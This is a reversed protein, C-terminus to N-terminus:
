VVQVPFRLKVVTGGAPPCDVAITGGHADILRKATSLGLGTGRAKTTFFPTFLKERVDAPIGPGDDAIAVECGGSGQAVSIRVTGRGQMAHASNLILNQLVIKLMEADGPIPAAGGAIEVRFDKLASDRQLLDAVMDLLSVLDVPAMRPQPPRAFLLMDKMLANLADLRAIIERIVAADKGDSPLRTGIVQIAGRIGTLPNKVEHAVVAAMEGLKELATQERLRAEMRVRGSLDHVIGTFKREGEISMEGVSLHIPFTTGDKRLGTVERGIGIIRQEGTQLYRALYDDHEDRYPSPMLMAVNRGLVEAELYGFLREAAANYAEVRGRADIVIIGDVASEVIARWRAESTRLALEVRKRSTIDRAIASAGVVRGSADHIPSVTLSVDLREGAKTVRVTEYHGLREGERVGDLISQFETMHSPPILTAISRGIMEEASYGYMRAAGRNWSVVFGDLDKGIIADDSSEVIAALIRSPDDDPKFSSGPTM